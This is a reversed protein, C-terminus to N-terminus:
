GDKEKIEDTVINRRLTENNGEKFIERLLNPEFQVEEVNIIKDLIYIRYNNLKTSYLNSNRKVHSEFLVKGNNDFRKMVDRIDQQSKIAVRKDRLTNLFEIFTTPKIDSLKLCHIKDDVKGIVFVYRSNDTTESPPRGGSYAEIKYINRTLIRNAPIKKTAGFIQIYERTYAM